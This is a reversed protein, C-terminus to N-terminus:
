TEQDGEAEARLKDRVNLLVNGYHNHGRLDRGCGWFYDYLSTEVIHLEGTELLAEAVEPHTRCKIYTGRTMVTVKVKDWDRRRKRRHKRAQKRAEAPHAAARVLERLAPDEFAMAQFYHEVSPWDAGDLEFGHKSFSALPDTADSMSVRRTPREPDNFLM